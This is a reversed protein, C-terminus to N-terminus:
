GVCLQHTVPMKGQDIAILIRKVHASIASTKLVLQRFEMIEFLSEISNIQQMIIRRFYFRKYLSEWFDQTVKEGVM